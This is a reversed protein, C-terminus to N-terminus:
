YIIDSPRDKNTGANKPMREFAKSLVSDDLLAIAILEAIQKRSQVFSEFAKILAAILDV